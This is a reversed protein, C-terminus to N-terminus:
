KFGKPTDRAVIMADAIQYCFSSVGAANYDVADRNLTIGTLVQGAFYDRLTMGETTVPYGHDGKSLTKTPFAPGGNTPTHTM